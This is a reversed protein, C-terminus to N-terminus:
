KKLTELFLSICEKDYHEKDSSSCFLEIDELFYHKKWFCKLTITKM